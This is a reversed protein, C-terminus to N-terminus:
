EEITDYSENKPERLFWICVAVVFIVVGVLWPWVKVVLDRWM